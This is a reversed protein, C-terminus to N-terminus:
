KSLLGSDDSYKLFHEIKKIKEQILIPIDKESYLGEPFSIERSLLEFTGLIDRDELLLDRNTKSSYASELGFRASKSAIKALEACEEALIFLIHETRNM